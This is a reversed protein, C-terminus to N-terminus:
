SNNRHLCSRLWRSLDRFAVEGLSDAPLVLLRPKCDHETPAIPRFSLVIIRPWLLAEGALALLESSNASELRWVGGDFSLYQDQRKHRLERTVVYVALLLVGCGPAMLWPNVLCLPVLTALYAGLLLVFFIVRVLFLSPSPTIKMRQLSPLPKARGRQEVTLVSNQRKKCGPIRVFLIWL